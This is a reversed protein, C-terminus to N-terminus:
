RDVIYKLLSNTGFTEISIDELQGCSRGIANCCMKVLKSKVVYSTDRSRIDVTRWMAPDKSINQWLPCVFQASTLIEIPGLRHLIKATVDRPLDLWNPLATTEMKAEKSPKPATPTSAMMSALRQENM